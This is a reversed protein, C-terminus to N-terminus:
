PQISIFSHIVRVNALNKVTVSTSTINQVCINPHWFIGPYLSSCSCTNRWLGKCKTPKPNLFILISDKLFKWVHQTITQSRNHKFALPTQKGGLQGTQGPQIPEGKHPKRIQLPTGQYTLYKWTCDTYIHSAHVPSSISPFSCNEWM